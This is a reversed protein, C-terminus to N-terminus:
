PKGVREVAGTRSSVFFTALTKPSILDESRRYYEVMWHEAQLDPAFRVVGDCANRVGLRIERGGAEEAIALADEAATEMAMLDIEKWTGLRPIYLNKNVFVRGESPYVVVESELRAGFLRSTRVNQFYHLWAAQFGRDFYECDFGFMMSTLRWTGLPSERISAQAVQSVRLYDADDWAREQAAQAVRLYDMEDWMVPTETEEPYIDSAAPRVFVDSQGKELDALIRAADIAYTTGGLNVRDEGWLWFCVGIVLVLCAPTLIVIKLWRWRKRTTAM